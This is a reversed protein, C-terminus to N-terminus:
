NEVIFKQRQLIIKKRKLYNKFVFNFQNNFSIKEKENLQLKLFINM